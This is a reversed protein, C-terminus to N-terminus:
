QNIGGGGKHKKHKPHHGGHKHPHKKHKNPLLSVQPPPSISPPPPTAAVEFAGIDCIASGNNDGDQPRPVGRQDTAPCAANDGADIASSGTLLAHTDTPGGNNQLPGLPTAVAHHRLRKRGM